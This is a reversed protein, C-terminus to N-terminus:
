EAPQPVPKAFIADAIEQNFHIDEILITMGEQGNFRQETSFPLVIGDVEQYNSLLIEIETEQGNVMMKRVMKLVVFNEADIYYYEIDGDNKTLKLAYVKTGDLDETGLLELQHGKEEYKWLNGDMDAMEKVPKLDPGVLDIPDASGTWPAIMWGSKGDYAQKMMAGQIDMELYAKDPRKTISKFPMEMVMQLIKGSAVQTDMKLLKKQGTTEFFNDLITQLDQSYTNGISFIALIIISLINKKM